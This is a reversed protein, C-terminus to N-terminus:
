RLANPRAAIAKTGSVHNNGLCRCFFGASAPNETLLVCSDRWAVSM